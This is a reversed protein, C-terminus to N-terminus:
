CCHTQWASAWRPTMRGSGQSSASPTRRMLSSLRPGLPRDQVPLFEFPHGLSDGVAMGQMCGMSRNFLDDSLAAEVLKEKLTLPIEQFISYHNLDDQRSFMGRMRRIQIIEKDKDASVLGNIVDRMLPKLSAKQM